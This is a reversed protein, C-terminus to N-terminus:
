EVILGRTMADEKLDKLTGTWKDVQGVVRLCHKARTLCVNLRRYDTWFGMDHDRVVSVIVADAEQGQFSDITHVHEFGLKLLLRTQAQYPSIIVVSDFVTGLHEALKICLHAEEQNQYSTGVPTCKGDCAVIQYVPERSESASMYNTTLTGDYFKENPYAVIEPHMRFQTTLYQCPYGCTLLREMMSRNHGFGAGLDSVVAPLQHNDGVMVIHKVESRLLAWIWAEMTQAAEDILIVDFKECDLVSGARGSITSCVVRAKPDQSTVVTTAPIRSLPMVLAADPLVEVIKSYLNATGVNTPACALVRASAHLPLVRNALFWTKGTGPPGHIIELHESPKALLVADSINEHLEVQELASLHRDHPIPSAYYAIKSKRATTRVPILSHYATEAEAEAELMEQVHVMVPELPGSADSEVHLGNQPSPAEEGSDEREEMQDKEMAEREEKERKREKRKERQQALREEREEATEADRERKKKEKRELAAMSRKEAKVEKAARKVEDSKAIKANKLARARAEELSISPSAPKLVVAAEKVRSATYKVPPFPPKRRHINLTKTDQRTTVIGPESTGIDVPHMYADSPASIPQSMTEKAEVWLCNMMRSIADEKSAFRTPIAEPSAESENYAIACCLLRDARQTM